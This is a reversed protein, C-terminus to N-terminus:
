KLVAWRTGWDSLVENRWKSVTVTGQWNNEFLTPDQKDTYWNDGLPFDGERQVGPWNNHVVFEGQQPEFDPILPVIRYSIDGAAKPTYNVFYKGDGLYYGDWDQGHIQLTLCKTGVAMDTKPGDLHIELVSYVAITDALTTNRDFVFKPSFTLKEFSGGWCEKFPDEPNGDMMYLLSPTDGMKVMGNYYNIFDAGMNGCGSIYKDYYGMNFEDSNKSNTIFGRYSANNEIMWLDPFNQAIYVYSNVSFKKNPGGIWYVKIKDAIDPADHLAQAVDDLGGWTLVWLPSDSQKRACEVIWDSGETASSYGPMPTAGRSGQKCLAKLQEPTYLETYHAKLKPFDKEYLDIIKYIAEKSGTGFSPSSVIGELDFLDSYMLLHVMSQYDDPDSGGIDTSVLIRPKSVEAQTCSSYTICFLCLIAGITFFPKKM